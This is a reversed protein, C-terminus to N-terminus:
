KSSRWANKRRHRDILLIVALLLAIGTVWFNENHRTQNGINMLLLVVFSAWGAIRAARGMEGHWGWDEPKEMEQVTDHDHEASDHEAASM